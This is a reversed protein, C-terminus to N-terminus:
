MYVQRNHKLRDLIAINTQLRARLVRVTEQNRLDSVERIRKMSIPEDDTFDEVKVKIDSM